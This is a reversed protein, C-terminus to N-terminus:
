RQVASTKELGEQGYDVLTVPTAARKRLSNKKERAVRSGTKPSERGLNVLATGL